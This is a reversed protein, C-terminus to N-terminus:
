NSKHFKLRGEKFSKILETATSEPYMVAYKQLLIIGQKEKGARLYVLGLTFMADLAGLEISKKLYKVSKLQFKATSALFIGYYYNGKPHNPHLKLLKEFAKIAKKDSGPFGLNHGMSNLFGIRILLRPDKNEQTLLTKLLYLTKKLDIVIKKRQGINDFKPPYNGAHVAIRQSIQDIIQFDIYSEVTGSNLTKTKIADKITIEKSGRITKSACGMLIFVMCILVMRLIYMKINSKSGDRKIRIDSLYKHKEEFNISTITM